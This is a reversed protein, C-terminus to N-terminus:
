GMNPFIWDSPPVQAFSTCNPNESTNQTIPPDNSFPYFQSEFLMWGSPPENSFPYFQSEFMMWGPPPFQALSTCNHEESTNECGGIPLNSQDVPIEAECSSRFPPNLVRQLFNSDSNQYETFPISTQGISTNSVAPSRALITDDRGSNIENDHHTANAPNLRDCDSRFTSNTEDWPGDSCFAGHDLTTRTSVKNTVNDELLPPQDNQPHDLGLVERAQSPRHHPSVNRNSTVPISERFITLLFRKLRTWNINKTLIMGILVMNLPLSPQPFEIRSTKSLTKPSTEGTHIGTSVVNMQRQMEDTYRWFMIYKSQGALLASLTHAKEGYKKSLAKIVSIMFEGVRLRHQRRKQEKPDCRLTTAARACPQFHRRPIELFCRIIWSISSRYALFQEYTKHAEHLYEVDSFKQLADDLDALNTGKPKMKDLDTRWSPLNREQLHTKANLISMCIRKALTNADISESTTQRIKKSSRGDPISENDLSRKASENEHVVPTKARTRTSTQEHGNRTISEPVAGAKCLPRLPRKSSKPVTTQTHFSKPVTTTQPPRPRRLPSPNDGLGCRLLDCVEKQTSQQVEKARDDSLNGDITFIVEFNLRMQSSNEVRTFSHGRLSVDLMKPQM